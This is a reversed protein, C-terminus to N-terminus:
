AWPTRRAAPSGEDQWWAPVTVAIMAHGAAHRPSRGRRGGSPPIRAPTRGPLLVEIRVFAIRKAKLSGRGSYSNLDAPSSTRGNWELDDALWPRKVPVPPSAEWRGPARGQTVRFGRCGGVVRGSGAWVGRGAAVRVVWDGVPGDSAVTGNCFRTSRGIRQPRPAPPGSTIRIPTRGMIHASPPFGTQRCGSIGTALPVGRLRLIQQISGSYTCGQVHHTSLFLGLKLTM